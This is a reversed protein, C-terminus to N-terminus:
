GPRADDAGGGKEGLDSVAACPKRFRLGEGAEGSDGRGGAGGAFVSGDGESPGGVLFESVGDAIEGAVRGLAVFPSVVAVLLEAGVPLAVGVGLPDEGAGPGVDDPAAPM